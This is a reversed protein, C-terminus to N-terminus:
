KPRLEMQCALFSTKKSVAIMFQSFRGRDKGVSVSTICQLQQVRNKAGGERGVELKFSIPLIVSSIMAFAIM